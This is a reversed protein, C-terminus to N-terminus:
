LRDPDGLNMLKVPNLCNLTLFAYGLILFLVENMQLLGLCTLVFAPLKMESIINQRLSSRVKLAAAEEETNEM